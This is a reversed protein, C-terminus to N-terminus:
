TSRQHAKGGVDAIGSAEIPSERAISVNSWAALLSAFLGALMVKM